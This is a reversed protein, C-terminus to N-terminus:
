INDMYVNFVIMKTNVKVFDANEFTMLREQFYQQTALQKQFMAELRLDSLEPYIEKERQRSLAQPILVVRFKKKNTLM